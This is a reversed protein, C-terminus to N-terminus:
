LISEHNNMSFGGREVDNRDLINDKVEVKKLKKVAGYPEKVSLTEGKGSLIWLVKYGKPIVELKDEGKGDTFYILLNVKNKNAYEFVPTFRTSGKTNSRERLDKKSKLPYVSRIESDCEVITIQHGYNKIIGLVETMAKKFENEDISGSIDIALLINAKHSSLEGRLDLRDPQRRNRRMMTKKKNSDVTGMLRKLYMDWPLEEKSDKLSDLLTNLYSPLEGKKSTLAIRITFEEITSDELDNSEEWIDHTKNPDFATALANEKEQDEQHNEEQLLAIAYEMKDVYYEFTKGHSLSLAYKKNASAITIADPPLNSLYQNVVMDMAMNIALTSYKGKLRKMRILHLSLIHLIEHKISTQMQKASLNLFILPNFYIVYTTNKFNVGTASNMDFRLEKTTQFLFYGYFNQSDEMLLFNIKDILAFFQKEFGAPLNITFNSAKIDANSFFLLLRTVQSKLQNIQDILKNEM